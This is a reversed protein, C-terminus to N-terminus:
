QLYSMKSNSFYPDTYPDFSTLKKSFNPDFVLYAFKEHGKYSLNLTSRILQFKFM